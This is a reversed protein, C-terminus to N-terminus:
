RARQRSGPRTAGGPARRAAIVRERVAASGESRKPRLEEAPPPDVTLTIDIRDALAGSLKAMYRAVAGPHCDCEGSEPGNGCPCPNSAAVLMFRCPLSM